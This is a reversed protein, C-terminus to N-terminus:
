FNLYTYGLHKALEARRKRGASLDHAFPAPAKPALKKMAKCLVRHERMAIKVEKTDWDGMKFDLCVNHLICLARFLESYWKRKRFFMGKKLM